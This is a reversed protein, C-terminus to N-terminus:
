LETYPITHHPTYKHTLTHPHENTCHYKGKTECKVKERPRGLITNTEEGKTEDLMKVKIGGAELPQPFSELLPLYRGIREKRQRMETREDMVKMGTTQPLVLRDNMVRVVDMEAITLRLLRM